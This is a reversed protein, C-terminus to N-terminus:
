RGNVGKLRQKSLELIREEIDDEVSVSEWRQEKIWRVLGPIFKGNQATWEPSKKQIELAKLMANFVDDTPDLEEFAAYADERKSKRPYAEYLKEFLACVRTNYTINNVKSEKVKSQPNENVNESNNDANVANNNVDVWNKPMPILLYRGDIKQFARRETAEAYRKQIGGSTLIQYQDYMQRDFLGRRFCASLVEKVVNVGAGCESAFMLAVDNNWVTYYGEIGYIKQWIRTLFGTGILGFEAQILKVDDNFQCDLPFYDLGKKQPRAM